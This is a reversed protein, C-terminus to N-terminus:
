QTLWAMAPLTLTLASCNAVGCRWGGFIQAQPAEDLFLGYLRIEDSVVRSVPGRMPLAPSFDQVAQLQGALNSPSGSIM